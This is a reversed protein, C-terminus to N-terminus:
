NYEHQSNYRFQDICFCALNIVTILHFNRSLAIKVMKLREYSIGTNVSKSLIKLM